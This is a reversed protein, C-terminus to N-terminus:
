RRGGRKRSPRSASPKKPQSASTDAPQGADSLQKALEAERTRSEALHRTLDSIKDELVSAIEGVAVAGAGAVDRASAADGRSFNAAQTREVLARGMELWDPLNANRSLGSGAFLVLRKDRLADVIIKMLYDGELDSLL